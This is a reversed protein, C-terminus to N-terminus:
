GGAFPPLFAVEDNDKLAISESVVKQNVSIQFKYKEMLPYHTTFHSILDDSTKVNENKLELNKKGVIDGLIGFLLVKINM